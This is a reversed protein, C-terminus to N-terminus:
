IDDEDDDESASDDSWADDSQEGDEFLMDDVNLDEEIDTDADYEEEIFNVADHDGYNEADDSRAEKIDSIAKFRYLRSVFSTLGRIDM